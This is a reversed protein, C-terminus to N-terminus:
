QYIANLYTEPVGSKKESLILLFIQDHSHINHHEAYERGGLDNRSEFYISTFDYISACPIFSFYLFFVIHNSSSNLTYSCVAILPGSVTPTNRNSKSCVLSSSREPGAVSLRKM